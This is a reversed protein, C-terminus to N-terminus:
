FNIHAEMENSIDSIEPKFVADFFRKAPFHNTKPPYSVVAFFEALKNKRPQYFRM